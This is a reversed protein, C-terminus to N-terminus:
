VHVESGYVSLTWLENGYHNQPKAEAWPSPSEFPLWLLFAMHNWPFFHLFSPCIQVIWRPVSDKHNWHVMGIWRPVSDKHNWHVMGIWRPVSDKHNWHVMGIWPLVSDKHNWHNWDIRGLWVLKPQDLCASIPWSNSLIYHPTPAM